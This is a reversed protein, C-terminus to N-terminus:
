GGEDSETGHPWTIPAVKRTNLKACVFTRKNDLSRKGVPHLGQM